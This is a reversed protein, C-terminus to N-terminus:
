DGKRSFVNAIMTRWEFDFRYETLRMFNNNSDKNIAWSKLILTEIFTIRQRGSSHRGEIRRSTYVTHQLVLSYVYVSIWELSTDLKARWKSPALPPVISLLDARLDALVGRDRIRAGGSAGQDSQRKFAQSRKTTSQSYVFVWVM